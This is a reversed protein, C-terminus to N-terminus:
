SVEQLSDKQAKLEKLRPAVLSLDIVGSEIAEYQMAIRCQIDTVKKKNAELLM